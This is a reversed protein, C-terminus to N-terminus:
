GKKTYAKTCKECIVMEIIKTFQVNSALVLGCAMRTRTLILHIMRRELEIKLSALMQADTMGLKRGLRILDVM